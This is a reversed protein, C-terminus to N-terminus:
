RARPADTSNRAGPGQGDGSQVGARVQDIASGSPRGAQYVNKSPCTGPGSNFRAKDPPFVLALGFEEDVARETPVSRPSSGGTRAGNCQGDDLSHASALPAGSSSQACPEIECVAHAPVLEKFYRSQWPVNGNNADNACNHVFDYVLAHSVEIYGGSSNRFCAASQSAMAFDVRSGCDLTVHFRIASLHRPHASSKIRSV